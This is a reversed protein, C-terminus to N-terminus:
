EKPAAHKHAGMVVTGVDGPMKDQLCVIVGNPRIGVENMLLPRITKVTGDAQTRSLKRVYESMPQFGVRRTAESIGETKRAEQYNRNLETWADFSIHEVNAGAGPEVRTLLTEKVLNDLADARRMHQRASSQDLERVVKGDSTEVALVHAIPAKDKLLADHSHDESQRMYNQYHEESEFTVMGFKTQKQVPM